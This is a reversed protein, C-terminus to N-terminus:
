SLTKPLTLHHSVRLLLYNNSVGQSIGGTSLKGAQFGGICTNGGKLASLQAEVMELHDIIQKTTETCEKEAEVLM